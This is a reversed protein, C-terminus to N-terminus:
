DVEAIFLLIESLLERESKVLSKLNQNLSENSLSKLNM